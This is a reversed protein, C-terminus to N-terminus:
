PAAFRWPADSAGVEAGCSRPGLARRSSAPAEAGSVGGAPLPTAHEDRADRLLAGVVSSGGAEGPPGAGRAVALPRRRRGGAGALRWSARRARHSGDSVRGLAALPWRRWRRRGVLSGVGGPVRLLLIAGWGSPGRCSGLAMRVRGRRLARPAGSAVRSRRVSATRGRVCRRVGAGSMPPVEGPRCRFSRDGWASGGGRLRGAPVADVLGSGSYRIGGELAMVGGRCASEPAGLVRGEGCRSARAAEPMRFPRDGRLDG